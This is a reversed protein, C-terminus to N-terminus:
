LESHHCLLRGTCQLPQRYDGRIEGLIITRDAIVQMKNMIGLLSYVTDNPSNLQPNFDVLSSDTDVCSTFAAGAGFALVLAM